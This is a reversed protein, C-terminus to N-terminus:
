TGPLPGRQPASDDPQQNICAHEFEPDGLDAPNRVRAITAFCHLCISESTGDKHRIRTFKSEWPNM